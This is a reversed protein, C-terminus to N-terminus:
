SVLYSVIQFYIPNKAKAVAPVGRGRLSIETKKTVKWKYWKYDSEKKKFNSEEEHKLIKKATETTWEADKTANEKEHQKRTIQVPIRM